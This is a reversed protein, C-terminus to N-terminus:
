SVPVKLPSQNLDRQLPRLYALAQGLGSCDRLFPVSYGTSPPNIVTLLSSSGTVGCRIIEYGGAEQLKPFVELLKEFFESSTAKSYFCIKRRGLGAQQLSFKQEKSPVRDQKRNALCFFEHTWTEKVIYPVGHSRSQKGKSQLSSKCSKYSRPWFRAYGSSGPFISRFYFNLHFNSVIGM